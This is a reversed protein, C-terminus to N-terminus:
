PMPPLESDPSRSLFGVSSAFLREERGGDPEEEAESRLDELNALCIPCSVVDLHFQTYGLWPDELVGLLFSGLTSRKLCTLRRWRWVESVTVDTIERSEAQPSSPLYQSEAISKIRQIARFKIGAVQKEDLDLLAAIDKNRRVVYFSLEIM